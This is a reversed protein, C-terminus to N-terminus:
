VSRSPLTTCTAVSGGWVPMTNLADDTDPGVVVVVVVLVVASAVVVVVVAAHM